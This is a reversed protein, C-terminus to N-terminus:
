FSIYKPCFNYLFDAYMEHETGKKERERERFNHRTYPLTSFHPLAPHAVSSLVTRRMCKEHRIVLAVFVCLIHLVEQKEV